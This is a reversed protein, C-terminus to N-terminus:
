SYTVGLDKRETCPSELQPMHSRQEGVLSQVQTGQMEPCIRLWQVVLSIGGRINKLPRFSFSSPYPKLTSPGPVGRQKIKKQSRPMHSRLEGVYNGMSGTGGSISICLGLGSSRSPLGQPGSKQERM